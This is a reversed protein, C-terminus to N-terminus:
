SIVDRPVLGFLHAATKLHRDNSYIETFDNARACGLHIADGTRLYIGPPLTEFMRSVEEIITEHLPLWNWLGRDQDDRWTDLIEQM